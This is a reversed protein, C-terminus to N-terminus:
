RIATSATVLPTRCAPARVHQTETARVAGQSRRPRRRRRRADGLPAGAPRRAAARHAFPGGLQAPRQVPRRASGAAAGPHDATGGAPGARTVRSSAHAIRTASSWGSNRRPRRGSSAACSPSPPRRPPLGVPDLRDGRRVRLLGSTTTISRRIGPRSPMSAVRRITAVLGCTADEHQGHEVVVVRDEGRHAGAGPAVQELAGVLVLDHARDRATAPPSAIKPGDTPRASSRTRRRRRARAAGLRDNGLQGGPLVLHEVQDRRAPAVGLM